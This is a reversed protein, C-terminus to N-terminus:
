GLLDISHLVKLNYVLNQKGVNEKIECYKRFIKLGPLSCSSHQLQDILNSNCKM